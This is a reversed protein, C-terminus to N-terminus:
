ADLVQYVSMCLCCLYLREEQSSLVQSLDHGPIACPKSPQPQHPHPYMLLM